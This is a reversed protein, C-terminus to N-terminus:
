RRGRFVRRFERRARRREDAPIGVLAAAIDWWEWAQGVPAGAAPGETVGADRLGHVALSWVATHHYGKRARVAAWAALLDVGRGVDGACLAGVLDWAVPPLPPDQWPAVTALLAGVHAVALASPPRPDLAIM